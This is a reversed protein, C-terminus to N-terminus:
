VQVKHLTQNEEVVDVLDGNQAQRGDLPCPEERLVEGAFVWAHGAKLSRAAKPSVVVRPYPRVQRM